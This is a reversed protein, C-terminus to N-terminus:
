VRALVVVGNAPIVVALHRGDPRVLVGANGVGNGGFVSADSNFVERWGGGGLRDDPLEYGQLFPHNNLSAVVLLQQEDCWRRFAIVRNANHVHIVEIQRSRLGPNARRLAIADRYFDFM